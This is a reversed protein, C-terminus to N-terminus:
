DLGARGKVWYTKTKIDNTGQERLRARVRQVLEAGGTVGCPRDTRSIASALATGRPVGGQRRVVTIGDLGVAGLIEDMPVHADVELWGQVQGARARAYSATVAISTEDGLLAIAGAPMQLSRSPGAFRLRDGVQLQAAWRSAPSGGQVHVLLASSGDANWYLPTYTRVDDSPLLVQVKDGPRWSGNGGPQMQLEIWCFAKSLPHVCTVEADMLLRGFWKFFRGKASM